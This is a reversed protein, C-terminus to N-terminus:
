IGNNNREYEIEIRIGHISNKEQRYQWKVRADSDARGKIKVMKGKKNLYMGRKEPFICEGLEDRLYKFSIALNDDDMERPGMRTFTIICPLHIATVYKKYAERMIFQQRRHRASKEHWHESSNAESVTRIPLEFSIKEKL